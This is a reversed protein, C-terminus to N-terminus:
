ADRLADQPDVSAARRAPMYSALLVVAILLVLVGAFTAPDTPTIEFLLGSLVRTTLLSVLVGIALGVAAPKAGQVIMLRVVSGRGAGLAMRLGIERSRQTVEYAVLAFLGVAALALSVGGFMSFVLMNFRWPGRTRRVIEDMTTVGGVALAKDFSALEAAMAPVVLLPDRLAVRRAHASSMGEDVHARTEMEVHFQLEEDLESEIRRRRLLGRVYEVLTM